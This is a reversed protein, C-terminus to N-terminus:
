DNEDIEINDFSHFIMSDSHSEVKEVIKRNKPFRLNSLLFTEKESILMNEKELQDLQQQILDMEYDILCTDTDYIRAAASDFSPRNKIVVDSSSLLM